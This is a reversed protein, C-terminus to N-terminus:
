STRVSALRAALERGNAAALRVLGAIGRVEDPGVATGTPLTLVRRALTETTPLRRGVDPFLTRYPEMRHCGPHFYRRAFVNEAHLVQVIRDRTVGTRTEDIELVLYQYNSIEREDYALLRVGPLDALAERYALWNRRNAEVFTDLSELSTLGMAAAVETMKANTGALVVDDYGAFGFNRLLRLEAALADDDTVVAGGEFSNFFKTAHFSLIEARGFGGIRKGGHTAAFAHAADFLLTLGRRSAIASLAEVDAPRGWLHVALIGTTRETVLGEVAAPDLNHTEPDVDAFVPTIGQLHLAHATAVFTYSPLIVEGSLGTARIVLELGLTGNVVAVCHRVGLLAAIRRELEQVFEGNNTLWRRDLMAEIRRFLAQRDGVNPTGVHLLRPFAPPNGWIALDDLKSKM